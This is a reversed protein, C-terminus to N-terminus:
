CTRSRCPRARSVRSKRLASSTSLERQLRLRLPMSGASEGDRQRDREDDPPDFTTLLGILMEAIAANFDPRPFDLALVHNGSIQDPRIMRRGNSTRVPLWTDEILNM